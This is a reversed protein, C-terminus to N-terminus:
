VPAPTRAKPFPPLPPPAVQSAHQPCHQADTDATEASDRWQLRERAAAHQPRRESAHRHQDSGDPESSGLFVLTAFSWLSNMDILKTYFM